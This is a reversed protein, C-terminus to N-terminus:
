ERTEKLNPKFVTVQKYALFNNIKPDVATIIGLENCHATVRQIVNEKLVGKNYDEFILVDPKQIQLYKLVTDIFVHEEELYLEDVVEDDMRMMQQNRSIVRTKTTTVRKNSKQLLSTDIG